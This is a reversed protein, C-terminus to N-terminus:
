GINTERITVDIRKGDIVMSLEQYSFGEVIIQKTINDEIFLSGKGSTEKISFLKSYTALWTKNFILDKNNNM